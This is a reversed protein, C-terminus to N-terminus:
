IKRQHVYINNALYYWAIYREVQNVKTQHWWLRIKYQAAVKEYGEFLLAFRICEARQSQTERFGRYSEQLLYKLRTKYQKVQKDIKGVQRTAHRLPINHARFKSSVYLADDALDDQAQADELTPSRELRLGDLDFEAIQRHLAKFRRERPSGGSIHENEELLSDIAM